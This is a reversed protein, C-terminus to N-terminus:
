GEIIRPVVFFGEAHEPAENMIEQSSCLRVSDARLHPHTIEQTAVLDNNALKQVSRAYFLVSKIQKILAPIEEEQLTLASLKALKLLDEKTIEM